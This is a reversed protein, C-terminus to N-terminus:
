VNYGFARIILQTIGAFVGAALDDLVIGTGGGYKQLGRIPPPKAVDYFRFLVFATGCIVVISYVSHAAGEALLPTWVLALAVSQGAVEDIVVQSPDKVNLVREAKGGWQVCLVTSALAIVGFVIIWTFHGCGHKAILIALFIPPLSAWTGSGPSIHGLGCATIAAWRMPGLARYLPILSM